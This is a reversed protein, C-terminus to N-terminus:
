LRLTFDIRGGEFPPFIRCVGAVCRLGGRRQGAFLSVNSASDINYQVQGNLYTDPVAPDTDFEFGFAVTVKDYQVGTLHQGQWFPDNPGGLAQVRRRHWGQLQLQWPGGLYRIVDYRVYNEQYFLTTPQGRGNTIVRDTEDVRAGVVANARSKRKQSTIETGAAFDWVVNRNDDRRFLGSNDCNPNSISEAWTQYHGVWFFISEDEGVEFDTKARGGTVCTNQEEFATDVWFAETTPPASYQVLNFEPAQGIDVNARLPYFRRYHKGELTVTAPLELYTVSGYVAHGADPAADHEIDQMAVELYAAGHDDLDPVNVSVSGTRVRDASRMSGATLPDQRELMSGQVGLKVVNTGGEIQAGVLRDPAYSPTANPVFTTDVTRPMGAETVGIIGPTVSSDVSIYRGSAEDIRLPNMVGGLGTLRLRVDGAKVRGTFRAGRVTTDSSLEDLKRVSLVLGRGLQAYFDGATLEVDPTTYGVYYKAPYVWNIYRNSLEEGAELTKLVFFNAEDPTFPGDLNGGRRLELLELGIDAPSPSAFFLASDLRLGAQWKKWNAQVNLRNYWLGWNDDALREVAASNGLNRNDVNFAVSSAETVDLGVPSGGLEGPEIAHVRTTLAVTALGVALPLTRM